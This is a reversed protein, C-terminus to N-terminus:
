DRRGRRRLIDHTVQSADAHPDRAADVIEQSENLLTQLQAWRWFCSIGFGWVFSCTLLAEVEGVSFLTVGYIITAFGTLVSGVQETIIGDVTQRSMGALTVAAGALLSIGWLVVAWRPLLAEISEPRAGTIILPLAAVIALSLIFVARPDVPYRSAAKIGLLTPIRNPM